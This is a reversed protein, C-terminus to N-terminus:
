LVELLREIEIKKIDSFNKHKWKPKHDKDIILSRIGEIFDAKELSRSTFRYEYELAKEISPNKRVERIIKITCAISIPSNRRFINLIRKSWESSDQSLESIIKHPDELLFCKNIKDINDLISDKNKYRTVAFKSICDPKGSEILLSKVRNWKEQEIFFDAFGLEISDDALMRTGTTGLYEGIFGPTQSLLFTGGVDPILGIGCEPMSIKSNECVIRYSGHCAIGVGGGMTYGHLFAIYPKPYNAILKNLRYEDKWFRNAYELDGEIAKYYIKAIDGGACFAKEGEGDIIVQTVQDEEIWRILASEIEHCMEYSLANLSKPRTLTIRGTSNEIRCNIQKM